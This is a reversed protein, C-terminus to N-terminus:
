EPSMYVELSAVLPLSFALPIEEGNKGDESREIIGGKPFNVPSQNAFMALIKLKLTVLCLLTFIPSCSALYTVSM